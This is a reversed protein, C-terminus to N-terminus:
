WGAARIWPHGGFSQYHPDLCRRLYFPSEFPHAQFPDSRPPQGAGSLFRKAPSRRAARGNPLLWGILIVLLFILAGFSEFLLLNEPTAKSVFGGRGGRFGFFYRFFYFYFYIGGVIGGFLYKPQRMRKIRLLLRNKISHFQLYLLASIM